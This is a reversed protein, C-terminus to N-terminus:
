RNNNNMGLMANLWDAQSQIKSLATEMAAFKKYLKDEEDWMKQQLKDIQENARRISTELNNITANQNGFEYNYMLDHIRSLLGRDEPKNSDEVGMFLSTVKIPDEELAARLKDEDLMIQGGTGDNWTGTTLGLQAASMGAAGIKEYLLSRLSNTLNQIASDNRLLGKKAIEEWEEIQKESMLSKEEDTLPKYTMEDRNKREKLMDELKKIITNYGEVFNRIKEIADTADRKFTVLTDEDGAATTKNLTIKVGDNYDFTNDDYQRLEGNIYVQAKSGGTYTGNYLGFAELGRLTINTQGTKTSEITFQDSLRDYRMTVGVISSYRNVEKMMDDVTMDKNLTIQYGNIFIDKEGKADFELFKAAANARTIVGNTGISNRFDDQYIRSTVGNFNIESYKRGAEVGADFMIPDAGNLKLRQNIDDLTSDAYVFASMNVGNVSFNMIAGFDDIADLEDTLDTHLTADLTGDAYITGSLTTSANIRIEIDADTLGLDSLKSAIRDVDDPSLEGDRNFGGNFDMLVISSSSIKVGLPLYDREKYASVDGITKNTYFEDKYAVIEKGNINVKAYDRGLAQYDFTIERGGGAKIKRNIDEISDNEKLTFTAGNMNVKAEGGVFKIDGFSTRLFELKDTLAFPAGSRSANGITTVSNKSALSVIQGIRLTGTSAKYNTSVSIAGANIGKADSVTSNYVSSLQMANAGMATLYTRRFDKLQDMVGNISQQKWQLMTRSRFQSDIKLQHVRLMQQVISDTDMGSSLGILRIPTQRNLPNIAM